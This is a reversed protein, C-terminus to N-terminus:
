GATGTGVVASVGSEKDLRSREILIRYQEILRSNINDWSRKSAFEVAAASMSNRLTENRVLLELKEAYTRIDGPAAVFGTEGDQILEGVGGETSGVAPLGSAAAEMVVNGFSETTSPFVFIDSSAYARSLDDGDLHGALIADPANKEIEGRMPGEGVFVLQYETGKERLLKHVALLTEVDKEKVLRGIFVAIPKGDPSWRNKLSRDAFAPSFRNLDMGRSWLEVNKFGVDSLERMTAKSPVLCLDCKNYFKRLYYWGFGELWGFGYYKLYSVFRTHFSGAIPIGRQRAYRIAFKGLYFPSCIHVIDPEFKDLTYTLNHFAPLSVKYKPYLPFPVSLVQVAKGQWAAGGPAFPSFFLHDINYKELSKKLYGLTHSVGDVLPPLSETFYAVKM